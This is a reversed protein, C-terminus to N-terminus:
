PNGKDYLKRLKFNGLVEYAATIDQFKKSADTSGKNKDPHYRMSLKYYASKIDTQTAKPTIGLAEYHNRFLISTTSFNSHRLANLCWVCRLFM